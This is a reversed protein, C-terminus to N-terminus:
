RLKRRFSRGRGDRNHEAEPFIRNPKAQDIIERPWTAIRDPDIEEERFHRGLAQPKQM